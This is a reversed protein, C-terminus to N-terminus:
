LYLFTYIDKNNVEELYNGTSVIYKGDIFSIGTGNIKICYEKANDLMNDYPLNNVDYNFNNKIIYNNIKDTFIQQKKLKNLNLKVYTDSKLCSSILDYGINNLLNITDRVVYKTTLKNTEFKINHPLILNNNYEEIFKQLIYCDHGETDIKLLFIGSVNNKIIFDNLTYKEIKSKEFIDDKIKNDRLYNNVKPHIKDISNCGKIWWPLNYKKINNDNIYYIFCEGNSDSIACNIKKVNDKNPLKDLYFKIPEVSIGITNDNSTEIITDFDSTGIEIFDHFYSNM